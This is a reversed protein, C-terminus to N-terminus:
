RPTRASFAPLRSVHAPSREVQGTIVKTKLLLRLQDADRGDLLVIRSGGSPLPEVTSVRFSHSHCMAEIDAVSLSSNIVRSM